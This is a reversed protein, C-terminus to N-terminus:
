DDDDDHGGGNGTRVIAMVEICADWSFILPDSESPEPDVDTAVMKLILVPEDGDVFDTLARNVVKVGDPNLRPKYGDGEIDDPITVTQSRLFQKPRKGLDRRKIYVSSTIDWRHTGQFEVGERIIGGKMRIHKIDGPDLDNAELWESIMKAYQNCVVEKEFRGTTRNEDFRVCFEENLVIKARSFSAVQNTDVINCGAALLLITISIILPIGSLWKRM